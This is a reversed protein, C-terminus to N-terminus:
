DSPAGAASSRDPRGAEYERDAVDVTGDARVTVTYGCYSFALEVPLGAGLADLADSDIVDHLPPNLRVPDTNERTAVTEIVAVSPAPVNARCSM